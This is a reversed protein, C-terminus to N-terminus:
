SDNNNLKYFQRFYKDHVAFSWHVNQIINTADAKNGNKVYDIFQDHERLHQREWDKLYTRRPFDYLRLKLPTIIKNLAENDSLKLFIGHFELNLRYYSEFDDKHIAEKQKANLREMESVHDNTFQDFVSLVVSAELAGIIEYSERIDRLTLKRVQVGRRPLISVFGEVELQILADRLPTKSIGLEQSIENLNISSGPLLKGSQMESKFYDYIQERLSKINLIMKAQM